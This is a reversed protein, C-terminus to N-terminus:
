DFRCRLLTWLGLLGDGPTIKKGEERSRAVYTIPMEHVRAGSRLLRAAIEAEIAFGSSSLELSRFLETPMLKYCTYLDSIWRNYILGAALSLMRNGIVYWFSYASHAQFARTGFVVDAIGDRLPAVLAPIDGPDYELDADLIASYTGRAESLGYRIAHGKGRNQDTRFLRVQEPWENRGLIESTSDTSGDDVVVLEFDELPSGVEFVREIAREITEQENHAPMLISLEPRGPTSPNM